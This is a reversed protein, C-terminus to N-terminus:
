LTQCGMSIRNIGMAKLASLRSRGSVTAPHAETTISCDPTVEISARIRDLISALAHDSFLTPTGGGFYICRARKGAFVGQGSMLSIEALLAQLYEEQLSADAKLPFSNCFLCESFCFPLHLYLLLEEEDMSGKLTDIFSVVQSPALMQFRHPVFLDPQNKTYDSSGYFLEKRINELQRTREM